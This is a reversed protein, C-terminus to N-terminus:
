ARETHTHQLSGASLPVGAGLDIVSVSDGGAGDLQHLYTAATGDQGSSLGYQTEGVSFRLTWCGDDGTQLRAVEKDGLIAMLTSFARAMPRPNYRRDIFAHRPFYGRDVDMFTDYIFRIGKTTAALVM